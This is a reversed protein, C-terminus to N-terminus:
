IYIYSINHSKYVTVLINPEIFITKQHSRQRHPVLPFCLAFLKNETRQGGHNNFTQRKGSAFSVSLRKTQRFRPGGTTFSISLHLTSSCSM